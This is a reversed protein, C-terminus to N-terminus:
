TVLIVNRKQTTPNCAYISEAFWRKYGSVRSVRGVHDKGQQSTIVEVAREWLSLFNPCPGAQEVTVKQGRNNSLFTEELDRSPIVPAMKIEWVPAARTTEAFEFSRASHPPSKAPPM